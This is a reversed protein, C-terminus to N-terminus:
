VDAKQLDTAIEPALQPIKVMLMDLDQERRRAEQLYSKKLPDTKPDGKHNYYETQAKRMAAAKKYLQTLLYKPDM